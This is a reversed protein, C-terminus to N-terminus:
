RRTRAPPKRAIQGDGSGAVREIAMLLLSLAAAMGFVTLAGSLSEMLDPAVLMVGALSVMVSGGVLKLLRGHREQLKAARMSVVAVGLVALEDLLFVLMYVAFLMKSEIMQNLMPKFFAKRQQAM